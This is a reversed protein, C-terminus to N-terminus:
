GEVEYTITMFWGDPSYPIMSVTQIKRKPFMKQFNRLKLNAEPTNLVYDTFIQIM